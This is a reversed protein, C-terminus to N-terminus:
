APAGRKRHALLRAELQLATEKRLQDREIGLSELRSQPNALVAAALEEAAEAGIGSNDRLSLSVLGTNVRLAAALARAGEHGVAPLM